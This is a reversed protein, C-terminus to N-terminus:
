GLSGSHVRAAPGATLPNAVFLLHNKKHTKHSIAITTAPKMNVTHPGFFFYGVLFAGGFLVIRILGWVM